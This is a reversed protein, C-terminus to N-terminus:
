AAETRISRLLSPDISKPITPEPAMRGSEPAPRRSRQGLRPPCGPVPLSKGGGLKAIYLKDPCAGPATLM